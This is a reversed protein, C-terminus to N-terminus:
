KAVSCFLDQRTKKRNYIIYYLITYSIFTKPYMYATFYFFAKLSHETPVDKKVSFLPLLDERGSQYVNFNAKPIEHVFVLPKKSICICRIM